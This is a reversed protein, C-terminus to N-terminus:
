TMPILILLDTASSVFTTLLRSKPLYSATSRQSASIAGFSWSFEKAQDPISLEAAAETQEVTWENDGDEPSTLDVYAAEINFTQGM